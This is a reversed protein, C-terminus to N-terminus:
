LDFDLDSDEAKAAKSTGGSLTKVLADCFSICKEEGLALAVILFVHIMSMIKDICHKTLPKLEHKEGGFLDSAIPFRGKELIRGMMVPDLGKIGDGHMARTLECLHSAINDFLEDGPKLENETIYEKCNSLLLLYLIYCRYFGEDLELDDELLRVCADANDKTIGMAMEAAFANQFM